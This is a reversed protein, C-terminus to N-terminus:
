TLIFTAQLHLPLGKGWAAWSPSHGCQVLRAFLDVLLESILFFRECFFPLLHNSFWRESASSLPKVRPFLLLIHNPFKGRLKASCLSSHIGSHKMWSLFFHQKSAILHMLQGGRAQPHPLSLEIHTHMQFRLTVRYLWQHDELPFLFSEAMGKMSM